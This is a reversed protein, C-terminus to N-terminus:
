KLFKTKELDLLKRKLDKGLSFGGLTKDSRLVRHCPIFIPIPNKGCAQGVARAKKSDGLKEAVQKYSFAEGYPIKKLFNWVKKQFETGEELFLPIKIRKSRGQLYDEVGKSVKKQFLDENGSAGSRKVRKLSTVSFDRSKIEFFGLSTKIVM